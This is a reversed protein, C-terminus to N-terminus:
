LFSLSLAHTHTHKQLFLCVCQCHCGLEGQAPCCLTWWATVDWQSLHTTKGKCCCVPQGPLCRRNGLLVRDFVPARRWISQLDQPERWTNLWSRGDADTQWPRSQKQHIVAYVQHGSTFDYFHNINRRGEKTREALVERNEDAGQVIGKSPLYGWSVQLNLSPLTWEWISYVWGDRM